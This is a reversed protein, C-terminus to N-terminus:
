RKPSKPQFRREGVWKDIESRIFRVNSQMRIYPILGRQVYSYVTKVSISLIEAVEKATLLENPDAERKKKDPGKAELSLLFSFLEETTLFRVRRFPEKDLAIAVEGRAKSLTKSDQSVVVIHDFDAALCKRVNEVDRQPSSAVSIECAVSTEGVELAVDVSGLGDLIRKEATSQFGRTKAWRQILNQLYKHEEGGRGGLTKAPLSEEKRAPLRREEEM